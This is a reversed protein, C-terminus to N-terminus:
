VLVRSSETHLEMQIQTHVKICPREACYPHSPLNIQVADEGSLQPRPISFEYSNIIIIQPRTNNCKCMNMIHHFPPIQRKIASVSM